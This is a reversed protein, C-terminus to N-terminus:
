EAEQLKPAIIRWRRSDPPAATALPWARRAPAIDAIGAFVSGRQSLADGSWHGTGPFGCFDCTAKCVNIVSIDCVALSNFTSNPPTPHDKLRTPQGRCLRFR